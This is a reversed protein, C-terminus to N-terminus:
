KKLCPQESVYQYTDSKKERSLAKHCNLNTLINNPDKIRVKKPNAPDTYFSYPDAVRRQTVTSLKNKHSLIKELENGRESHKQITRYAIM